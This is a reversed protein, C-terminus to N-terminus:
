VQLVWFNKFAPLDYSKLSNLNNNINNNNNDDDDHPPLKGSL